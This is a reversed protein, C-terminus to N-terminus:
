SHPHGIMEESFAQLESELQEATICNLKLLTEGLPPRTELQIKLLKVLDDVEMFGLEIALDGFLLDPQERSGAQIRDAQLRLINFIENINLIEHRLAIRGLPQQNNRQDELAAVIDGKTVVGRSVLFEGIRM